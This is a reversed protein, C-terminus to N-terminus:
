CVVVIARYGEQTIIFYEKRNLLLSERAFLTILSERAKAYFTRTLKERLAYNPPPATSLAGACLDRSDVKSDVAWGVVFDVVWTARSM